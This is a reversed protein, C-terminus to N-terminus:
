LTSSGDHAANLVAIIREVAIPKLVHHDFQGVLVGAHHKEHGTVAVLTLEGQPFEERLRHTLEAGSAGPMTVDLFAVQPRQRRALTLASDMDYAVLVEQGLTELLGALMDAVDRQDDVVLM